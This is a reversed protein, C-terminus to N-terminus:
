QVRPAKLAQLKKHLLGNTGYKRNNEEYGLRVARDCIEPILGCFYNAIKSMVVDNLELGFLPNQAISFDRIFTEMDKVAAVPDPSMFQSIWSIFLYQAYVELSKEKFGEPLLEEVEVDIDLFISAGSSVVNSMKALESDQGFESRMIEEFENM